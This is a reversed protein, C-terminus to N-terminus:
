PKLNILDTWWISLNHLPIQRTVTDIIWLLKLVTWPAATSTAGVFPLLYTTSLSFLESLNFATEFILFQHYWLQHWRFSSLLKWRCHFRENLSKIFQFRKRCSYLDCRAIPALPLDHSIGRASIVLRYEYSLPLFPAFAISSQKVLSTDTGATIM